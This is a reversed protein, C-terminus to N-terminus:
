PWKRSSCKLPQRPPPHRTYFQERERINRSGSKGLTNRRHLNENLLHFNGSPERRRAEERREKEARRPADAASRLCCVARQTSDLRRAEEKKNEDRM